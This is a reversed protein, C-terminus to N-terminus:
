YPVFEYPMNGKKDYVMHGSGFPQRGIIEWAEDITCAYHTDRCNIVVKYEWANPFLLKQPAEM